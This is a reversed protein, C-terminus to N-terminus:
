ADASAGRSLPPQPSWPLSPSSSGSQSCPLPLRVRLLLLGGRVGGGRWWVVGAGRGVGWVVVMCVVVGCVVVRSGDSTPESWRSRAPVREGMEALCRLEADIRSM